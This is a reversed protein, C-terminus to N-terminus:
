MNWGVDPIHIYSRDAIQRDARGDMQGDAWGDM